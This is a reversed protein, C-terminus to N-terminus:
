NNNQGLFAVRKPIFSPQKAFVIRGSHDGRFLFFVTKHPLFGEGKDGGDGEGFNRWIPSNAKADLQVWIKKPYTAFPRDQLFIWFSIFWVFPLM